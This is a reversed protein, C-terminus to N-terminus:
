PTKKEKSEAKIEQIMTTLQDVKAELEKIRKEEDTAPLPKKITVEIKESENPNQCGSLAAGCGLLLLLGVMVKYKPHNM